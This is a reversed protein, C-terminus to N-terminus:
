FVYKRWSCYFNCCVEGRSKKAPPSEFGDSLPRKPDLFGAQRKIGNVHGGNEDAAVDHKQLKVNSSLKPVYRTGSKSIKFSIGV